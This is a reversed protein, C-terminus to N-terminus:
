TEALTTRKAADQAAQELAKVRARLDREAQWRETEDRVIAVVETVEGRADRLLSVTFAISLARGDRHLAPVKLLTTGYRTEGTRVTVAYGDWHRQRFREPTILDLTRGVAEAERHGFLREAAGNWFVIVGRTDSAIIADGATEALQRFDLAVGETATRSEM